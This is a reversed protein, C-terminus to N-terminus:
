KVEQKGTVYEYILSKKYEKLNKIMDELDSITKDIKKCKEDLFEAIKEQEEIQPFAVPLNNIFQSPIRKLGGIGTMNFVAKDVFGSNQFWYFIFMRNIKFPRIVYLESSGLGVGSTINDMIAINGNEFCPTVKAFVIDGEQFPTLSKPIESYKKSNSIFYGNKIYEMPLYEIITDDFIESFDCHPSLKAIYKLKEVSWHEPIEGIWEVDSDKMEKM